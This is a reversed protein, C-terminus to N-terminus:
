GGHVTSFVFLLLCCCCVVNMFRLLTVVAVFDVVLLVIAVVLFSGFKQVLNFLRDELSLIIILSSFSNVLGFRVLTFAAFVCCFGFLVFGFWVL